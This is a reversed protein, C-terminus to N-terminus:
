FIFPSYESLEKPYLISRSASLPQRGGLNVLASIMSAQRLVIDFLGSIMQIM